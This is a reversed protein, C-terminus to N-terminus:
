DWTRLLDKAAELGEPGHEAIEVALDGVRNELENEPFAANAVGLEAARNGYLTRGTYMYERCRLLGMRDPWFGLLGLPIRGDVGELRMEASQSCYVLDCCGVIDNATGLCFGHVQAILPKPCDLLRMRERASRRDVLRSRAANEDSLPFGCSFGAGAGKLIIVRCEADDASASIAAWLATMMSPGLSNRDAPRNLTLHHVANRRDVLVHPPGGLITDLKDAELKV